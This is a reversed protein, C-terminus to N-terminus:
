VKIKQFFTFSTKTKRSLSLTKVIKEITESLMFGCTVKLSFGCNFIILKLFLTSLKNMRLWVFCKHTSNHISKLFPKNKIFPDIRQKGASILNASFGHYLKGLEIKNEKLFREALFCFHFLLFHIIFNNTLLM